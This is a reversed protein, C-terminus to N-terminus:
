LRVMKKIVISVACYDVFWDLINFKGALNSFSVILTNSFNALVSWDETAATM